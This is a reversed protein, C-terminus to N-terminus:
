DDHGVAKWGLGCKENGHRENEVNCGRQDILYGESEAM